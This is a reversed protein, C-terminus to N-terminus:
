LCGPGTNQCRADPPWYDRSMHGKRVALGSPYKDIEFQLIMMIGLKQRYSHQINENKKGLLVLCRFQDGEGITEGASKCPQAEEKSAVLGSSGGEMRTHALDLSAWEHWYRWWAESPGEPSAKDGSGVHIKSCHIVRRM